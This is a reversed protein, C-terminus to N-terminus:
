WGGFKYNLGLQVINISRNSVSFTDGAPFGAAGAPITFSTNNLRIYDYELRASWTGWFAWELGAGAVWGDNSTSGSTFAGGTTTNTVTNANSGVWAWGGKGYVLVRDFGDGLRGTVDTVWRNNATVAIINGGTAPVPTGNGTNNANPLWDFDAEVGAVVGGWFQYNFGVQGGGAFQGQNTSNNYNLGFPDTISVTNWGWGINPGLYFGTWNYLPIPAPVYTAPARPPPPPPPLDAAFAQVCTGLFLTGAVLICNSSCKM